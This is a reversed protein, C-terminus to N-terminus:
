RCGTLVQARRGSTRQGSSETQPRDAIDTQTLDDWDEWDELRFEAGPALVPPAAPADEDLEFWVVKGGATPEAGWAQSLEAIFVMGRGTTSTPSYFKRQPLQHNRDHVEIRVRGDSRRLHVDLDTDAHLVVNSVLESVLLCATEELGDLGWGALTSAVFRRAASASLGEAPFHAAATTSSTM